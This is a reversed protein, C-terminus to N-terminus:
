GDARLTQNNIQNNAQNYKNEVIKTPNRNNVIGIDPIHITNQENITNITNSSNM